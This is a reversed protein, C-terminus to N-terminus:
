KTFRTNEITEQARKLNDDIKAQNELLFKRLFSNYIFLAGKTKPYFLYVYFMVKLPYYFPFFQLILSLPGDFVHLFSFVIWYTLWQKDDDDDPTEIAKFSMYSPYLLGVVATLFDSFIGFIICLLALCFSVAVIHGPPVGIKVAIDVLPKCKEFDKGIDELIQFIPNKSTQQNDTSM